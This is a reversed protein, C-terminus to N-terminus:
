YTYTRKVNYRGAPMGGVIRRLAGGCVSSKANFDDAVMIAPPRKRAEKIIGGLEKLYDNCQEKGKNPSCFGSVCFVDCVPVGVIGVNRILAESAARKGNFLTASVSADEGEDNFWYPLQRNPESIVVIDVRTECVCQM